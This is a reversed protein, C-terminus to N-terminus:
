CPSVIHGSACSGYLLPVAAPSSGVNVLDAYFPFGKTPTLQELPTVAVMDKSERRGQLPYSRALLSFSFGMSEVIMCRQHIRSSRPMLAATNPTNAITHGPIVRNVSTM